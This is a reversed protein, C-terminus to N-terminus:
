AVAVYVGSDDPRHHRYSHRPRHQPRAIHRQYLTKLFLDLISCIARMLYREHGTSSGLANSIWVMSAGCSSFSVVPFFGDERNVPLARVLRQARPQPMLSSKM